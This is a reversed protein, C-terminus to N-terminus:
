LAIIFLACSQTDQTSSHLPHHVQNAYSTNLPTAKYTQSPVQALLATYRQEEEHLHREFNDREKKYNLQIEKHQILCASCVRQSLTRITEMKSEANQIAIM